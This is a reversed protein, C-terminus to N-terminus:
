SATHYKHISYWLIRTPLNQPVHRFLLQLSRSRLQSLALPFSLAFFPEMSIPLCFLQFINPYINISLSLSRLHSRVDLFLHDPLLIINSQEKFYSSRQRLNRRLLGKTTPNM